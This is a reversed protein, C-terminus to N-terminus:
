AKEGGRERISSVIEGSEPFRDLEQKSFLLADDVEVEFVGGSGEILESEM